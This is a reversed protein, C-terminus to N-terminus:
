HKTLNYLEVADAEGVYKALKHWSLFWLRCLKGDYLADWPKPRDLFHLIAGDASPATDKPWIFSNYESRLDEFIGKFGINLACQDQFFLNKHLTQAAMIAGELGELIKQHRLNFLLVGSNFYRGAELGHHKIAHEIEPRKIEPKARLAAGGESFLPNLDGIVVTDADIYLAKEYRRQELLYKAFYIRYYAAEALTQGATFIGYATKLQVSESLFKQKPVISISGMGCAKSLKAAIRTAVVIANPDDVALMIDTDEILDRNSEILSTISVFSACLYSPNACYYIVNKNPQSRSPVKAVLKKFVLRGRVSEPLYHSPPWDESSIIGRFDELVTAYLRALSKQMDILPNKRLIGLIRMHASLKRIARLLLEGEAAFDFTEDFGLQAV